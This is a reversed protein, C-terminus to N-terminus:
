SNNQAKYIVIDDNEYVLPLTVKSVMAKKLMVFYDIGYKNAMRLRWKDNFVYYRRQVEQGLMDWARSTPRIAFYRDPNVGFENFRKLGERFTHIDGNYVWGVLLWSHLVGFSARRAYDRWGYALAPDVMFLADKPTNKRAWIQSAMYNRMKRIRIDSIKFYRETGLWYLSGALVLIVMCVQVFRVMDHKFIYRYILLLVLMFGTIIWLPPSGLVAPYEYWYPPVKGQNGVLLLICITLLAIALWFSIRRLFLKGEDIATQILLVTSYVLPFGPVQIFPSVLIGISCTARLIDPRSLSRWIGRLIITLGLIIVLDNSRHLSLKLAFISIKIFSFILGIFCVISVVFLGAFIARDKNNLPNKQRAFCLLCILFSLFPILKNQCHVTLLGHEYPYM